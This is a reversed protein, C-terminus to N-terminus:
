NRSPFIGQLAIIANLALFPQRNEHAQSGGVNSIGSAMAALSSAPGYIAQPNSTALVSTGDVANVGNVSSGNALHIHQPLESVTITHAEEGGTQGQTFGDGFHLPVRGRLNPLAFNVRGDGGYTTGLLSFLAQNQNIPLLQGNCQAWGKPAFNFSVWKIEALFCDGVSM